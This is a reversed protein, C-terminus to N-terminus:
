GTLLQRLAREGRKMAAQHSREMLAVSGPVRAIWALRATPRVDWLFTLWSEDHVTACTWVGLGVLDGEARTWLTDHERRIFTSQTFDISLGLPGSLRYQVVERGLTRDRAEAREFDAWWTPYADFTTLVRWAEELPARVRWVSAWSFRTM